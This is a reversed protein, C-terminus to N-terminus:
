RTDHKDGQEKSETFGFEDVWMQRRENSTVRLENKTYVWITKPELFECLSKTQETNTM